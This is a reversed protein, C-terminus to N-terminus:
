RHITAWWPGRDKRNEWCSYQLPNGHWGGPSRGVEPILVVDGVNSANRLGCLKVLRCNIHETAWWPAGCTCAAGPSAIMRPLLLLPVPPSPSLWSKTVGHVTARWAEGDTPNELCSSQHPDNWTLKWKFHSVHASIHQPEEKRKGMKKKRKLIYIDLQELVMQESVVM